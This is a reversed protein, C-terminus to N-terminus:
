FQVIGEGDREEREVGERGEEKRERNKEGGPSGCREGFGVIPLATLM